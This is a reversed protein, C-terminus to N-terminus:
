EKTTGTPPMRIDTLLVDPKVREAVEHAEVPDAACGVVDIDPQEDLLRRLGERTVFHDEAVLVRM